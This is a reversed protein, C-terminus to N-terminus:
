MMIVLPTGESAIYPILVGARQSVKLLFDAVYNMGQCYGMGDTVSIATLVRHMARALGAKGIEADMFIYYVSLYYICSTINCSRRFM